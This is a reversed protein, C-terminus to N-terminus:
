RFATTFCCYLLLLAATFCFYLLESLYKMCALLPSAHNSKAAVDHPYQQKNNRHRLQTHTTIHNIHLLTYSDICCRPPVGVWGGVWVCVYMVQASDAYALLVDVAEKYVCVCVCVCVCVDGACNATYICICICM